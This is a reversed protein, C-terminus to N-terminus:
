LKYGQLTRTRFVSKSIPTNQSHATTNPSKLACNLLNEPWAPPVIVFLNNFQVSIDRLHPTLSRHMSHLPHVPTSTGIPIAPSLVPTRFSAHPSTIGSVNSTMSLRKQINPPISRLPKIPFPFFDHEETIGLNKLDRDRQEM